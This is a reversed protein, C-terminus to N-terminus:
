LDKILLQESAAEARKKLELTKKRFTELSENKTSIFLENGHSELKSFLMSVTLQQIDILPIYTRSEEQENHVAALVSAAVLESLLEKVIKLPLKHDTAIAEASLPPALNEFQKVVNHSIFLTLFNKYHKSISKTDVENDFELTNQAAYSIEAGLLIILCSIQLWLLLLPFAAFSGYVVNFSTLYIQGHIYLTQFAQFSTGAIVGALFASSFKVKTNPVVMYIITFVMWNVLYPALLFGFRVFPSLVDVLFSQDVKSNIFISVGSSLVIFIPVLLISSFYTTFQRILARSKKVQWISNFAREVQMFFNMVSGLLIVLGIGIFLGHQTSELYRQVFGMVTPTLDAEGIFTGELSNEILKEMGFGKAIAIILAFLPIIAFLISYTLASARMPLNQELFGRAAVILTKVLRYFWRRSKSLDAESIMWIDTALFQPLQQLKLKAKM